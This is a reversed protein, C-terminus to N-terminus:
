IVLLLFDVLNQQQLGLPQGQAFLGTGYCHLCVLTLHCVGSLFALIFASGYRGGLGSVAWTPFFVSTDQSKERM